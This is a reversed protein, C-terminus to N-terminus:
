AEWAIADHIKRNTIVYLGVKARSLGVYSLARIDNKEITESIALVVVDRELGKFRYVTETPIGHGELTTFLFESVGTSRLDSIITNSNTLVIIQNPAIKEELILCEVLKIIYPCIQENRDIEIFKPEPGNVEKGEIKDGFVNAVKKAIQRTNRCNITLEFAPIATPFTWGRSYLDQHSDAFLYFLGDEALTEQVASLWEPSFDQAEDVLIADFMSGSREVIQRLIQPAKNEFWENTPTIPCQLNIRKAEHPILSHFTEVHISTGELISALHRQLPANYCLLLTRFGTSALQRAKEVALITKGTGAGGLIVAQKNRRISQLIKVQENTLAILADEIDNVDDRLLRRVKFTPALLAIIRDIDSNVLPHDKLGWHLFIRKIAEMPQSLDQRDIILERPGNFGLLDDIQIDPFVVGHVITYGTLNPELNKFYELLAYKSDKAQDFPNKIAYRVGRSGTSHWVGNDVEIEGGKVELVLIGFQPVVIVFDAEGDGQKRGRRSQWAVSHFVILDDVSSLRERVKIESSPSTQPIERPYITAM